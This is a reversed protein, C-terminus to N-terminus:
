LGLVKFGFEALEKAGRYGIMLATMEPAAQWAIINLKDSAYAQYLLGNYNGPDARPLLDLKGEYMFLYLTERSNSGVYKVALIKAIKYDIITAGLVAWDNTTPNLKKPKFSLDPTRGFYTNVDEITETPFVLRNEPDETMVIAEYILSDLAKFPAKREPGFLYIGSALLLGLLGALFIFRFANGLLESRGLEEIDQSEHNARAADDEVLDHIDHMHKEDLYLRQAEIQLRGRLIGYDTAFNEQKLRKSTEEFKQRLDQALNDDLYDSVHAFVFDEDNLAVFEKAM